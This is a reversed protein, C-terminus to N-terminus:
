KNNEKIMNVWSFFDPISSLEVYSKEVTSYFQKQKPDNLDLDWLHDLYSAYEIKEFMELLVEKAKLTEDNKLLTVILLLYAYDDFENNAYFRYLEEADEIEYYLYVLRHMDKNNLDNRLRILMKQVKIARTFNHVDMLFEVYFDMIRLYNYKQHDDLDAFENMEKYFAEFRYNVYIDESLVFYVFFAELCFPDYKLAANVRDLLDKKSEFMIKIAKIEDKDPNNDLSYKKFNEKTFFGLLYEKPDERTKAIDSILNEFSLM